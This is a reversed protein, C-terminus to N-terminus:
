EVPRERMREDVREETRRQEEINRFERERERLERAAEQERHAEELRHDEAAVRGDHLSKLDTFERGFARELVGSRRPNSLNREVVFLVQERSYTALWEAEAQLASSGSTEVAYAPLQPSPYTRVSSAKEASWNAALPRVIEELVAMEASSATGLPPWSESQTLTKEIANEIREADSLVGLDSLAMGAARLKAVEEGTHTASKQLSQKQAQQSAAWLTADARRVAGRNGELIAQREAAWRASYPSWDFVAHSAAGKAERQVEDPAVPKSTKFSAGVIREKLNEGLGVFAWDNLASVVTACAEAFVPWHENFTAFHASFDELKELPALVDLASRAAEESLSDEKSENEGMESELQSAQQLAEEVSTHSVSDPAPMSEFASSSVDKPIQSAPIPEIAAPHSETLEYRLGAEQVDAKYKDFERM